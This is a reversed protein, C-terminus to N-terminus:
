DRMNIQILSIYAMFTRCIKVTETTSNMSAAVDNREKDMNQMMNRVNRRPRLYDFYDNAINNIKNKHTNNKPHHRLNYSDIIGMLEMKTTFDRLICGSLM